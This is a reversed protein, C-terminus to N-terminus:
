TFYLDFEKILNKLKKKRDDSRSLEARETKRTM